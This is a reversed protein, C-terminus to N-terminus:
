KSLWAIVTAISGILLAAALVWPDRTVGWGIVLALAIVIAVRAFSKYVMIYAIIVLLEQALESQEGWRLLREMDVVNSSEATM